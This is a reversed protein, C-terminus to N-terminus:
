GPVKWQWIKLQNTVQRMKPIKRKSRSRCHTNMEMYLFLKQQIRRKSRKILNRTNHARIRLRFFFMFNTVMVPAQVDNGFDGMTTSAQTELQVTRNYLAIMREAIHNMTQKDPDM